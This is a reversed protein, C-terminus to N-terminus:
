MLVNLLLSIFYDWFNYYHTKELREEVLSRIFSVGVHVELQTGQITHMDCQSVITIHQIKLLIKNIRLTLCQHSIM